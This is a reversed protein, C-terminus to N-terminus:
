FSSGVPSKTSVVDILRNNPNYRPIARGQAVKVSNSDKIEILDNSAHSHSSIQMHPVQVVVQDHFQFNAGGAVTARRFSFM